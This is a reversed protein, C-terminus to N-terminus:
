GLERIDDPVSGAVIIIEAGMQATALPDQTSIVGKENMVYQVSGDAVVRSSKPVFGEQAGSNILTM